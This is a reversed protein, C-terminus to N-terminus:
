FENSNKVDYDRWVNIFREKDYYVKPLVDVSGVKNVREYAGGTAQAGVPNARRFEYNDLLEVDKQVSVTSGSDSCVWFKSKNGGNGHAYFLAELKEKASSKCASRLAQAM